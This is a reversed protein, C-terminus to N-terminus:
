GMSTDRRAKDIQEELSEESKGNGGGNVILSGITVTPAATANGGLASAVGSVDPMKPNENLGVDGTSNGKGLNEM